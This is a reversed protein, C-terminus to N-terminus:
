LLRCVLHGRSQLESTHEESRTGRQSAPWTRLTTTPSQPTSSRTTHADIRLLGRSTPAHHRATCVSWTKGAPATELSKRWDDTSPTNPRQTATRKRTHVPPM